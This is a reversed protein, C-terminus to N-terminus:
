ENEEERETETTVQEAGALKSDKQELAEGALVRDIQSDDLIEYELLARALVHLKGENEKLLDVATQEAELVLDRIEQDITLATQESFSRTRAFEKGLFVEDDESGFSLPGLNKNMGWECVM